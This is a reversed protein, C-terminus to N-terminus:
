KISAMEKQVIENYSDALDIELTKNKICYLLYPLYFTSFTSRSVHMRKALSTALEKIARGDWRLRNLMAWPLNFQSYRIPVGEKYLRLLISDLYRLLRWEQNRVIKGYLVDAESIVDLMEKLLDKSIPSTIVSSYFANIKERPDIRLSYLIARAEDPSKAKFFANISDEVNTTEFSRDIQPEFGTVLAQVSNLMSRMDGRSDIVLKIINGIKLSTGERRLIEELYFRLLRPPLPRFKITTTVKKITKMKDSTDSNAALVIPVTPEKLIEVLAEVGGYDSRGHIGDVEDVFIMPKGFIGTSGLVPGLIEQIRQKSRVDSANLGIMDYGFQKAGLLSITTKGIGPPGILLLPKTGKIWKGLWNVFSEKAEENGIMELINKPRYKESWM